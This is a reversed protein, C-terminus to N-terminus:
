FLGSVLYVLLNRFSFLFLLLSLVIDVWHIAQWSLTERTLLMIILIRFVLQILFFLFYRLVFPNYINAQKFDLHMIASFGRSVGCTPCPNGTISQHVCHITENSGMSNFLEAYLFICLLIGGFILNISIYVKRSSL